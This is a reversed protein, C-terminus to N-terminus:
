GGTPPTVTSAAPTAGSLQNCVPVAVQQVTVALNLRIGAFALSNAQQDLTSLLTPDVDRGFASIVIRALTTQEVALAVAQQSSALTVPASANARCAQADTLATIQAGQERIQQTKDSRDSVLSVVSAINAIVILLATLAAPYKWDRTIHERITPPKVRTEFTDGM